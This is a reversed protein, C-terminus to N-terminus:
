GIYTNGSGSTMQDMEGIPAARREKSDADIYVVSGETYGVLIVARQADLMGIVPIDKDILYLIMEATCGTLDHARGGNQEKLIEVPAQRQLLRDAMIGIVEDKGEIFHQRSRNGQEWIYAQESDVVCGSYAAAERVAEGARDYIGQLEGYGYVFYKGAYSIDDFNIEGTDETLIQKPKLVKPERDSIGDNYVLRVQTEKLETTYTKLYINSAEREKNNTIYDATTGTYTEGEKTARNLTIMNVDFVTDLVYIGEVQYTKVIEGKSNQIGIKYMPVTVEGSITRGTDATKAVGYVFDNKVFGLPRICEDGGCETKREKGSELNKVTVTTAANMEKGQQWAALHGDESVVYQGDTLGEALTSSKGKTLDFEYLTGELMVYLNNQKMSYYVMSSLEHVAFGYSKNSSIFAKEEVSNKRSSYKYIAVGVEGEHAGRSMYGCVAFMTGGAGDTGLLKIEHHPVMNRVDSNEVDTFSFVLSIEDTEKSYNWLENAVVFSVESGDENVLYPIDQPVIGLVIGNESLMHKTVDFIQEMTRDYDLLYTTGSGAVHRVRFFEEVNYVDSENEEGKCRVRYELRVSVSDGNMETIDWREGKEVMPELEGWSVHDYDSHITVHQFTTNNASENPEIATGVGAGEVKNMANDHFSRVYDLSEAVSLDEADAIRTYFYIDNEGGTNLVIELVHERGATVADGLEVTFSEGNQSLAGEGMKEKGDLTYITYSAKQIRNEYAQITGEVRRANVPTITDRMAPIDMARAFGSLTNLVYGNYSFSIQPYTASGIDATMNDNGKNTYYSFGIVAAIFVLVLIATDRLKKIWNM